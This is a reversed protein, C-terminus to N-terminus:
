NKPSKRLRLYISALGSSVLFITGPEPVGPPIPPGPPCPKPKGPEPKGSTKPPICTPPIGIPPLLGGGPIPGYGATTTPGAPTLDPYELPTFGPLDVPPPVPSELQALRPEALSTMAHPIESVQNACRARATINGDTILKEGRHLTVPKSTWFISGGMRYSLYFIKPETLEIMRAHRFDFGAYHNAVLPDHETVRLLDDANQIGGPIVSYPYVPRQSAAFAQWVPSAATEAGWDEFTWPIAADPGPSYRSILDASL